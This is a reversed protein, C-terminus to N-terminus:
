ELDELKEVKPKGHTVLETMKRKICIYCDVGCTGAAHRETWEKTLIEDRKKMLM